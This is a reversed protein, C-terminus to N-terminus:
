GSHVDASMKHMTHEQQSDAAHIQVLMSLPRLPPRVVMAEGHM